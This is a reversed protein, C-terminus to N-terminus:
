ILSVNKVIFNQYTTYMQLIDDVKLDSCTEDTKNLRCKKVYDHRYCYKCFNELDSLSMSSSSLTELIRKCEEDSLHKFFRQLMQQKDGESPNDMKLHVSLRRLLAADLATPRNTAGILLVSKELGDLHTLFSTKMSITHSQDLATRKSLIGDIEDFFIVCPAMKNALTFVAKLLKLSEGYYKNEIVDPSVNLFVASQKNNPKILSSLGKALTTKGTGPPGYLLIGKPSGYICEGGRRSDTDEKHLKGEGEDPVNLLEIIVKVEDLIEKHGIIDSMQAATDNIHPVLCSSAITSEYSNLMYTKGDHKFPKNFQLNSQIDPLLASVVTLIIISVICSIIARFIVSKYNM